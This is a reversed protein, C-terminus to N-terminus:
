YTVLDRYIRSLFQWVVFVTLATRVLMRLSNLATGMATDNSPVSTFAFSQTSGDVWPIDFQVTVADQATPLFANWSGVALGYTQGFAPLNSVTPEKTGAGSPLGKDAPGGWGTGTGGGTSGGSGTGSGGCNNSFTPVGYQLFTFAFPLMGLPESPWYALPASSAFALAAADENTGHDRAYAANFREIYKTYHVYNISTSYSKPQPLIDYVTVLGLGQEGSGSTEVARVNQTITNDLLSVSRACIQVYGSGYPYWDSIQGSINNCVWPGGGPPLRFCARYRVVTNANLTEDWVLNILRGGDASNESRAFAKVTRCGQPTSGVVTPWPPNGTNPNGSNGTDYNFNSPAVTSWYSGSPGPFVGNDPPNPNEPTALPATTYVLDLANAPPAMNWPAGNLPQTDVYHSANNPDEFAFSALIKPKTTSDWYAASLTINGSFSGNPYTASSFSRNGNLAGTSPTENWTVRNRQIRLGNEYTFYIVTVQVSTVTTGTFVPHRTVSSREVAQASGACLLAFVLIHLRNNKEYNRVMLILGFVFVLFGLACGILAYTLMISFGKREEFLLGAGLDHLGLSDGAHRCLLAAPVGAQTAAGADAAAARSDSASSRCRRENCDGGM